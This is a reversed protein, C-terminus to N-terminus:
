VEVLRSTMIDSWLPMLYCAIFHKLGAAEGASLVQISARESRGRVLRLSTLRTLVTLAVLHEDTVQPPLCARLEGRPCQRLPQSSADRQTHMCREGAAWTHKLASCLTASLAVSLAALFWGTVRVTGINECSLATLTAATGALMEFVSGDLETCGTLNLDKCHRLAGFLAQVM